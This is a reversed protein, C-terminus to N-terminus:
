SSTPRHGEIPVLLGAMTARRPWEPSIITHGRPSINTKLDFLQLIQTPFAIERDSHLSFKYFIFRFLRVANSVSEYKQSCDVRKSFPPRLNSAGWM